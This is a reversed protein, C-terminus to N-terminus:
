LKQLIEDREQNLGVMFYKILNIELLNNKFLYNFAIKHKLKLKFTKRKINM